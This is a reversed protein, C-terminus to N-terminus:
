HAGKNNTLTDEIKQLTVWRLVITASTPTIGFKKYNKYFFNNKLPFFLELNLLKQMIPEFITFHCLHLNCQQPSKLLVLPLVLPGV